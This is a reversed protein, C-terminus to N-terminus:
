FEEGSHVEAEYWFKKLDEDEGSGVPALGHINMECEVQSQIPHMRVLLKEQELLLHRLAQVVAHADALELELDAVASGMGIFHFDDEGAFGDGVGDAADGLPAGM